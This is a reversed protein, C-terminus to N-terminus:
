MKKMIYLYAARRRIRSFFNLALILGASCYDATAPTYMIERYRESHLSCTDVCGEEGSVMPHLFSKGHGSM